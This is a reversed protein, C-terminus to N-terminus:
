CKCNSGCKGGCGSTTSPQEPPPNGTGNANSYFNPSYSVEGYFSQELGLAELLVVDDQDALAAKLIWDVSFGDDDGYDTNDQIKYALESIEIVKWEQIFGDEEMVLYRHNLELDKM